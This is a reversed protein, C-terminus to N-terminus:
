RPVRQKASLMSVAEVECIELDVVDALLVLLRLLSSRPRSPSPMFPRLIVTSM